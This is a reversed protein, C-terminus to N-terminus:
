IAEGEDLLKRSHAHRQAMSSHLRRHVRAIAVIRDAATALQSAAEAHEATRDGSYTESAVPVIDLSHGQRM